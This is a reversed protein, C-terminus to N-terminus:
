VLSPSATTAGNNWAYTYPATGGNATVTASGNADGNCLADTAAAQATLPTPENVTASASTTCGNADTITVTYSGATLGSITATTAGTSWAYTYPATGGNATVSASGNADGNCLADTAAAQATLETPENVTTTASPSITCGNADTVTVTYTQAGLNTITQTTDGTDWLYNYPPTGGSANATATGDTGDFCSVDTSTATVALASPQGVVTSNSSSNSGITTCGNADTVNVTYTGAVLGTITQTNGDSGWDYTYPPTGGSANATASGDNGLFCSVDTSSAVNVLLTPENVSASASTTCGNADTITVSYSGAVLGTISATTAGNSWTYSYPATGGNATVSASGSADGNCAVDTSTAAAILQTPENVTASASTTCGNADTITVTYTGATLGSINATTAGNSWAYTYPATGGNATVSATGDNGANCAVDTSTAAATL